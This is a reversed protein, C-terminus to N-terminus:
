FVSMILYYAGLAFTPLYVYLIEKRKLLVGFSGVMAAMNFILAGTSRYDATEGYAEASNMAEEYAGYYSEARNEANEAVQGKFVSLLYNINAINELIAKNENDTAREAYSWYLAAQTLYTQQEVRATSAETSSELRLIMIGLAATKNNSAEGGARGSTIWSIAAFLSAITVSIAAIKVMNEGYKTRLKKTM